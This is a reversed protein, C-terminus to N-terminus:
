VGAVEALVRARELQEQGGALDDQDASWLASEVGRAVSWALLRAPDEALADGLLASRERLVGRPDPHAFPSDTQTLLPWPDYAPDGTM